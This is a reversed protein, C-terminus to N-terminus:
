FLSKVQHFISFFIFFCPQIRLRSWLTTMAQRKRAKRKPFPWFDDGEGKGSFTTVVNEELFGWLTSVSLKGMASQRPWNEPWKPGNKPKEPWKLGNKAMKVKSLEKGIIETNKPLESGRKLTKKGNQGNKAMKPWKPWKPWKLWKPQKLWKWGNEVMCIWKWESRDMELWKKGNKAM